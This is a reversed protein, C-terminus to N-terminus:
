AASPAFTLQVECSAGAALQACGSVDPVLFMAAGAGTVEATFDGAPGTGANTVRIVARPSPEGVPLSGFDLATRDGVIMPIGGADRSARVSDVDVILSCGALQVAALGVLLRRM